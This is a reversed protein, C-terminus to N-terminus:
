KKGTMSRSTFGLRASVDNVTGMESLVGSSVEGIVNDSIGRQRAILVVRVLYRWQPTLGGSAFGAKLMSRTQEPDFDIQGLLSIMEAGTLFIEPPQGYFKALYAEFDHESVGRSLGEGVIILVDSAVPELHRNLLRRANEYANLKVQLALGIRLPAVQKALGEALKDQLPAIPLKKECAAFLPTVLATGEDDSFTGAKVLEGVENLVESSVGCEVAREKMGAFSDSEARSPQVGFVVLVFLVSALIVKCLKNM